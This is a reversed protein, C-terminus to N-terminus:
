GQRLNRRNFLGSYRSDFDWGIAVGGGSYTQVKDEKMAQRGLINHIITRADIVTRHIELAEDNTIGARTTITGGPQVYTNTDVENWTTTIGPAFYILDDVYIDSRSLPRNGPTKRLHKTMANSNHIIRITQSFPASLLEGAVKGGFVGVLSIAAMPESPRDISDLRTVM